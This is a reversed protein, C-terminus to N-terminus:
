FSFLETFNPLCLLCSTLICVIHTKFKKKKKIHHSNRGNKKWILGLELISKAEVLDM